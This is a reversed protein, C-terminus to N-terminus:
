ARCLVSRYASLTKQAMRDRTFNNEVYKRANHGMKIRLQPNKLLRLIAKTLLQANGASVLIGTYDDKIVETVGGSSCGIVPKGYSMAEIYVFGFSEYLSPAVFIDSSEYYGSLVSDEVYDLFCVNERCHGPLKKILNHKMSTQIDGTFSARNETLFTDRGIITFITKPFERLVHPIAEILIDIGKRKELRGVFLVSLYNNFDKDTTHKLVPFPVGLPIIEVNRPRIKIEKFINGAHRETSSIVLNSKLIVANELWCSVYRDPTMRWNRFHIVEFFHTHLRTVLPIKKYLSYVFTEGSLNPGEVIDLNYKEILENIKKYVTYSYELRCAFEELFGKHRFFPQHAIRHVFVKNEIYDKDRDLSQAIVHVDHGLGSLSCALHYTYTGIGGWGTEPPYERSVLCINM